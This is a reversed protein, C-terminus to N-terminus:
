LIDMKFSVTNMDDELMYRCADITHNDKDPFDAKFNGQADKALEYGLFERSANPCRTNDIIIEELDQLFKIGYDVSDPGKKAGKIKINYSKLEAISKPEASDAIITSHNPDIKKVMEAAKRNSLGVLFIEDFLYLKKRTKDYYGKLFVFPDIAYGWDIGRKIRDFSLLEENTITRTTINKFVDGGTGTVAGMYEHKYADPKTEKLHNAEILFQAGLWDKPVSLYDTHSVVKDERKILVENNVWNRQSKPPNFSYFVQFIEGGRMLSQNIIRIEEPGNFEDVEEYWIYKFYGKRLKASKIKKPKDAGRFIIKQGTPLYTLELKAEPINWSGTAGLQGIAWVLQEFVSEHLYLGVKRLVMANALPDRMIGLIIEISIFSSKTSGRGGKLWYHTFINQKLNKHIGYFSPAIINSLSINSM